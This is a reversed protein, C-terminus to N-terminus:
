KASLVPISGSGNYDTRKAPSGICWYLNSEILNPPASQVRVLVVKTACKCHPANELMRADGTIETPCVCGIRSIVYLLKPFLESISSLYHLADTFRRNILGPPM